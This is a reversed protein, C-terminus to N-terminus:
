VDMGPVRGGTTTAPAVAEVAAGGDRQEGGPPQATQISAELSQAVGEFLQSVLDLARAALGQQDLRHAAASSNLTALPASSAILLARPGPQPQSQSSTLLLHQHQHSVTVNTGWETACQLRLRPLQAHHHLQRHTCPTIPSILLIRFDLSRPRRRMRLNGLIASMAALHWRHSAHVASGGTSPRRGVRYTRIISPMSSTMSTVLLLLSSHKFWPQPPARPM